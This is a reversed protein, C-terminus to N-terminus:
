SSTATANLVTFSSNQWGTTGDSTMVEVSYLGFAASSPIQLTCSAQTSTPSTVSCQISNGSAPVLNVLTVDTFYQGTLTLTYSGGQTGSQPTIGSITPPALGITVANNLSASRGDPNIVQVNAPGANLSALNITGTIQTSTVSVGSAPVPQLGPQILYVNAGNQFNSGTITISLSSGIAGSTPSVTSIIPGNGSLTTQVTTPVTPTAYTVSAVSVQTVLVQYLKEVDKQTDQQTVGTIQSWTGGSNKAVLVRTYLNNTSDYATILWFSSSANNTIIDGATYKAAPPTTVKAITTTSSQSSCGALLVCLVLILGLILGYSPKVTM